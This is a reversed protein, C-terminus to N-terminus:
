YLTQTGGEIACVPTSLLNTKKLRWYWNEPLDTQLTQTINTTQTGVQITGTSTNKCEAKATWNVGDPSIQLEVKASQGGTVSLVCSISVSVSINSKRTESIKYPTTFSRQGNQFTAVDLSGVIPPTYPPIYQSLVLDKVWDFAENTCAEIEDQSIIWNGVGDQVPNFYQSDAFEQGALLEKQELTLIAIM